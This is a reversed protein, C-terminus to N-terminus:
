NTENAEYVQKANFDKSLKLPIKDIPPVGHLLEQHIAERNQTGARDKSKM